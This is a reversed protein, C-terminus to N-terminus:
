RAARPPVASTLVPTCRRKSGVAVPLEEVPLGITGRITGRVAYSLVQEVRSPDAGGEIGDGTVGTSGRM